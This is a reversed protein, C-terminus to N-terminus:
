RRAHSRGPRLGRRRHRRRDPAAPAGGEDPRIIVQGAHVAVQPQPAGESLSLAAIAEAASIARLVDDERAHPYGLYVLVRDGFIGTARGQHQVALGACAKQFARLAEGRTEVDVTTSPMVACIIALARREGEQTNVAQQEPETAMPRTLFGHAERTDLTRRAIQKETVQQILRGVPTGRLHEPQPVPEPSLLQFHVMSGASTDYVPQGTLCEIFVLGWSFLDTAPSVSQRSLQEPATYGPTGVWEGTQTLREAELDTLAGIGFDLVLASRQAGASSIM